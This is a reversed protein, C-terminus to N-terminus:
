TSPMSTIGSTRATRARMRAKESATRSPVCAPRLPRGIVSTTLMPMPPLSRPGLITVVASAGYWCSRSRLWKTDFTSGLSM